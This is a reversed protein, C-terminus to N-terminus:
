RERRGRLLRGSHDPLVPSAPPPEGALERTLRGAEALLPERDRALAVTDAVAEAIADCEAALAHRREPDDTFGAITRLSGLLREFLSVHGGGSNRIGRYAYALLDSFARENSIVRLADDRFHHRPPERRAAALAFISTLHDVAEVATHVDNVGPSLAKLAIDVVQRIGFAPDQEITRVTSFAVHESLARALSEPPDELTVAAFPGGEVVYDGPAAHLRVIAGHKAALAAIERYNITMVYGGTEAPLMWWRKAALADDPEPAVEEKEPWLDRIVAATQCVISGLVHTAQVSSATHHIFYIFFGVGVLALALGVVIALSPVFAEQDEVEHIARLVVLCYAFIGVFVGLVAQNGRDRMFNRLIRPTYQNSALSLVVITISFAVGAITIMSTAVAALMHRSGEADAAFLLESGPWGDLRSAVDVNVLWFALAVAAAVMVAPLFWFSTRLSILLKRILSLPM